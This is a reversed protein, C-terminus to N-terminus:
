ENGHQSEDMGSEPSDAGYDIINEVNKNFEILQQVEGASQLAQDVDGDTLADEVDGLYGDFAETTSATETDMGVSDIEDLVESIYTVAASPETRAFEKAEKAYLGNVVGKMKEFKSVRSTGVVTDEILEQTRLTAAVDALVDLTTESSITEESANLLQSIEAGHEEVQSELAVMTEETLQQSDSLTQMETLRHELLVAQYQLQETETLYPLGFAPEVVQVKLPYLLEGPLSGHAAYGTGMVSVVMVSAVVSSWQWLSVAKRKVVVSEVIAPTHFEAYSRLAGWMEEHESASLGTDKASALLSEITDHKKIM